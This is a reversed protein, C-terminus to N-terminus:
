GVHVLQGFILETDMKDAEGIIKVQRKIIFKLELVRVMGCNAVVISLICQNIFLFCIWNNFSVM